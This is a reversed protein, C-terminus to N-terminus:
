NVRPRPSSDAERGLRPAAENQGNELESQGSELESKGSDLEAQADNLKQEEEAFKGNIADQVKRNM